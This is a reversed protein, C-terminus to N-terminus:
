LQSDQLLRLHPSFAYFSEYFLQATAALALEISLHLVRGRSQISKILHSLFDASFTCGRLAPCLDKLFATLVTPGGKSIPSLRQPIGM